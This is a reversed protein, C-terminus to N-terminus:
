DSREEKEVEKDAALLEKKFGFNVERELRLFREEIM